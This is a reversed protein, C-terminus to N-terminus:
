NMVQKWSYDTASAQLPAYFHIFAFPQTERTKEEPDWLWLQNRKSNFGNVTQM